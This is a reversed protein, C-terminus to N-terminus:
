VRSAKASCPPYSRVGTPHGPRSQRASELSRTLARVERGDSDMTYLITREGDAVTFAIHRGDRHLPPHAWSSRMPTAGCNAARATQRGGSVRAARERRSTFSTTLDRAPRSGRRRSWRSPSLRASVETQPPILISRRAGSARLEIRRSNSRAANRRRKGCAVHLARARLQHSPACAARCELRVAM